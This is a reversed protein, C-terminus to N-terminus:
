PVSKSYICKQAVCAPAPAMCKPSSYGCKTAFDTDKCLKQDLAALGDAFPLAQNKSLAVGCTGQCATGSPVVVCDDDKACLQHNTTLAELGAVLAAKLTDCTAEVCPGNPYLQLWGDKCVWQGGSCATDPPAKGWCTDPPCSAADVAGTPCSWSQGSCVAEVLADSGCSQACTPGQGKCAPVDAPEAADVSAADAAPAPADAADAGVAADSHVVDTAGADNGPQTTKADASAVDAAKSSSCAALAALATCLLVWRVRNTKM